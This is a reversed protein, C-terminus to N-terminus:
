TVTVAFRGARAFGFFGIAPGAVAFRGMWALRLFGIAPGWLPSGAM